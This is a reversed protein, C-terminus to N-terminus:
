ISLTVIFLWLTTSARKLFNKQRAQIPSTSCITDLFNLSSCLRGKKRDQCSPYFNANVGFWYNRVFNTRKGTIYNCTRIYNSTSM